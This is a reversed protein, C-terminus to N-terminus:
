GAEVDPDDPSRNFSCMEPTVMGSIRIVYTWLLWALCIRHCGVTGLAKTGRWDLSSDIQYHSKTIKQIKRKSSM